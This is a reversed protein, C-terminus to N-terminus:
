YGHPCLNSEQGRDTPEADPMEMFRQTPRLCPKSRANSHIHCLGIAVAGILGRVQSGGYAAPAARFLWFLYILLYFVKECCLFWLFLFGVSHPLFM